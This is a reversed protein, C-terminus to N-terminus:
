TPRDATPPATYLIRAEFPHEDNANREYWEADRDAWCPHDGRLLCQYVPEGQAKIAADIAEALRMMDEGADAGWQMGRLMRSGEELTMDTMPKGKARCDDLYDSRIGGVDQTAAEMANLADVTDQLPEGFTDADNQSGLVHRGRKRDHVIGHDVFFRLEDM